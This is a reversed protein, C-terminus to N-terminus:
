YKWKVNSCVVKAPNGLVLSNPPVNTFVVARSGIISGSGIRVGPMIKCEDCLWVHDGIEIPKSLGYGPSNMWHGNTDRICVGRGARVDRGLTIRSECWIYADENFGCEPGIDLKGCGYLQMRSGQALGFDGRVTLEAAADVFLITECERPVLGGQFGLLLDGRLRLRGKVVSLPHRGELRIQPHRNMIRMLGNIRFTMMIRYPNFHERKIAKFLASLGRCLGRRRRHVHRQLCIEGDKCSIVSLAAMAREFCSRGWDTRLRAITVGLHQIGWISGDMWGRMAGLTIDAESNTSGRYRCGACQPREACGMVCSRLFKHQEPAAFVCRGKAFVVKAMHRAVSFEKSDFCLGTVASGHRKELESVWMRFDEEPPVGNCAMDVLLLNPPAGLVRRLEAIQCPLAGVLVQRGASLAVRVRDALGDSNAMVFKAGRLKALGPRDEVCEFAVRLGDKWVVGFVCGGSRVVSDALASFAGGAACEFLVPLSRIQVIREEGGKTERDQM